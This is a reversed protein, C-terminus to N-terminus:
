PLDERLSIRARWREPPDGDGPGHTTRIPERLVAYFTSGRPDNRPDGTFFFPHGLGLDRGLALLAAREARPLLGISGNLRRPEGRNDSSISGHDAVVVVDLSDYDEEYGVELSQSLELYPGVYLSALELFGDANTVDDVTIRLTQCAEPTVPYAMRIHDTGVLVQDLSFGKVRIRGQFGLNHDAAILAQVLPWGYVPADAVHTTAALDDANVDFGLLAGISRGGANAGTKWLLDFAFSATIRFRQNNDVGANWSAAYGGGPDAAQMAEAIATTLDGPATYRRGSINAVYTIGARRFDIRDLEGVIVDLQIEAPGFDVDIVHLGQYCRRDSEYFLAGTDDTTLDFGLDAGGSNAANAGTAWPLTVPAGGSSRQISFKKLTPSYGSFYTNVKGPMANLDLTVQAAREAGTAWTGPTLTAVRAVGGEIVDIKDRVGAKQTWGLETRLAAGRAPNKLNEAPFAAQASSPVLVTAVRHIANPHQWRPTKPEAM